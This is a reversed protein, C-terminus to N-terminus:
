AGSKKMCQQISEFCLPNTSLCTTFAGREKDSFAGVHAKCYDVCKSFGGDVGEDFFPECYGDTKLKVERAACTGDCDFSGADTAPADTASDIILTDAAADAAADSTAGDGATATDTKGADTTPADSTTGGCAALSFVISSAFFAFRRNM